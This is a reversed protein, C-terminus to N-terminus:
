GMICILPSTADRSIQIMPHNHIMAGKELMNPYSNQTCIYAYAWAGAQLIRLKRKFHGHPLPRWSADLSTELM